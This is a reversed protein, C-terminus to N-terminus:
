YAAMYSGFGNISGSHSIIHLTDHCNAAVKKSLEWGYGYSGQRTPMFMRNYLDASIFKRSYLAEDFKQLDEVTSILGGPGVTYSPDCPSANEYGNLLKYEYGKVLNKEVFAANYQKTSKMELPDFIREKLLQDFPKNTVSEAIYALLNYALNSYHFGTGPEFYLDSEEAFKVMDRLIHYLREQIAERAPDLSEMIGSTHTLLQEVTIVDGKKGTYDPVYDTIKGDVKIKGEDALQLIVM